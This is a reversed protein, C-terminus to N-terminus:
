ATNSERAFERRIAINLRMRVRNTHKTRPIPDKNNLFSALSTIIWGTRM